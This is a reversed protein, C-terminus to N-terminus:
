GAGVGKKGRSSQGVRREAGSSRPVGDEAGDVSSGAREGLAARASRARESTAQQADVAAAPMALDLARLRTDQSRRLCHFPRSVSRRPAVGRSPVVNPALAADGCVVNPIPDCAAARMAKNGVQTTAPHWDCSLARGQRRRPTTSRMVASHGHASDMGARGSEGTLPMRDGSGAWARGLHPVSSADAAAAAHAARVPRDCELSRSRDACRPPPSAATLTAAAPASVRM